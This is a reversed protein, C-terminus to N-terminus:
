PAASLPDHLDTPASDNNHTAKPKKLLLAFFAGIVTIAGATLGATRIGDLVQGPPADAALGANAIAVLVALGLAGGIQQSTTALASAVGEEGTAVGTAAATFMTVFTSGATLGYLVLGPLVALFSGGVSMGATLVGVSLGTTVMGTFLTARVGWRAIVRPVIQGAALMSTLALPLFALGARLADYGLVTQVYTTFLYYTGGLSIQYALIVAMASTLSANGFMHLPALPNRGRWEVLVFLALLVVGAGLAGAARPTAWGAEPGSVLGLVLLTSGATALLAGPVDFGGAGDPRPVDGPLLALAAPVALLALPVNILLVWEWGAYNTLVGGLLAGAALGFSGAAGWVGLARNRAPGETFASTILGLTAPTLLAGGLGQVARAAVLMGPGTALGGALSALAYIALALVFMRRQGLRDVARGGLLLFGGFGVAYASVVWQLSQATFGLDRGIAPLAVYVINYDVAILFQAFALLVLLLLPRRRAGSVVESM